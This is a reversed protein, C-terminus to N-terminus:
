VAKDREEKMGEAHAERRTAALLQDLRSNMTKHVIEIKRGNKLSVLVAAVSSVAGFMAVWFADSM